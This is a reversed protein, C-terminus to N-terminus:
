PCVGAGGEARSRLSRGAVCFFSDCSLGIHDTFIEYLLDSQSIKKLCILMDSTHVAVFKSWQGWMDFIIQM